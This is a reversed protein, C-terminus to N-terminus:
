NRKDTGVRVNHLTLHHPSLHIIVHIPTRLFHDHGLRPVTRDNAQVYQTFDRYIENLVQRISSGLLVALDVQGTRLNSENSAQRWTTQFFKKQKECSHKSGM